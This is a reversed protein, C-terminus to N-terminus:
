QVKATKAIMPEDWPRHFLRNFFPKPYIGDSRRFCFIARVLIWPLLLGGTITALVLAIILRLVNTIYHDNRYEWFSIKQETLDVEEIFVARRCLASWMRNSGSYKSLIICKLSGHSSISQFIHPLEMVIKTKATYNEFRRCFMEISSQEIKPMPAPKLEIGKYHRIIDMNRTTNCLLYDWIGLMVLHVLRSQRNELWAQWSYCLYTFMTRIVSMFHGQSADILMHNRVTFYTALVGYGKKVLPHSYYKNICIAKINHELAARQLRLGYEFDDGRFFLRANMIGAQHFLSTPYLIFHLTFLQGPLNQYRTQVIQDPKANLVMEEILQNSIPVADDESILCYEYERAIVWEQGVAFGGAGGQNETLKLFNFRDLYNKKLFDYAGDTSNNDVIVVDISVTAIDRCLSQLSKLNNYILILMCVNHNKALEHRSEIYSAYNPLRFARELPFSNRNIIFM